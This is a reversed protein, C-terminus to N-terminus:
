NLMFAGDTGKFSYFFGWILIGIGLLFLLTSIVFQKDPVNFKYDILWPAILLIYFLTYLYEVVSAVIVPDRM